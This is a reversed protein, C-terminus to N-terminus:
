LNGNNDLDGDKDGTCAAFSLLLVVCMLISILKKLMKLEEMNLIKINM